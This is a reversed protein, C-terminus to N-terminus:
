VLVVPVKGCVSSDMVGPVVKGGSTKKMRVYQQALVTFSAPDFGDGGVIQLNQTMCGNSTPTLKGSKIAADVVDEAMSLCLKLFLHLHAENPIPSQKVVVLILIVEDSYFKGETLPGNEVQSQSLALIIKASLM